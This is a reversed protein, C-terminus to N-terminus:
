FAYAEHILGIVYPSYKELISEDAELHFEMRKLVYKVERIKRLLTEATDEQTWFRNQVENANELYEIDALIEFEKFVLYGRNDQIQFIDVLETRNGNEVISFMNQRMEEKLDNFEQIRKPVPEYVFHHIDTYEKVFRKTYKDYDAMKSYLADHWVWPVHQNPVAIKKGKRLFEACQSIDYYDWGDFVDERWPTDMQTALLLGDVAEVEQYFKDDMEFELKGTRVNHLVKGTNWRSVMKADDSLHKSGIMGILAIEEDLDFVKVMDSIFMENLILVDQHMYVKYKADTSQMGMNYGAAMSPADEITIIDTEYGEPVVLHDLYFKCELYAQMDNVCIIFAMKKDNM